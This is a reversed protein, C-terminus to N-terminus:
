SVPRGSKIFFSNLMVLLFDLSDIEQYLHMCAYVRVCVCECIGLSLYYLNTYFDIKNM